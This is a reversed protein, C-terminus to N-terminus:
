LWKGGPRVLWSVAFGVGFMAALVFFYAQPWFKVTAAYIGTFVTPGIARGASHLFGMAGLLQGISEKPVHKTLAAQMTPSSIGGISAVAGALIFETGSPALAYGVFGLIDAFIAFRIVSLEFHDTGEPMSPDVPTAPRGIQRRSQRKQYWHTLVPLVFLLCAVKCSNIISAFKSQEWNGWGFAYNSYLLIVTHAGMGVGFVVTDTSALLILNRRIAPSSTPGHIIKLPEFVNLTRIRRTWISTHRHIRHHKERSALQRARPVSEPIVFVLLLVFLIHAGCALYFMSIVEGTLKIIFGAIIPGTAIGTFLCGHFYGFVVNRKNSPTCDSAYSHAIAM